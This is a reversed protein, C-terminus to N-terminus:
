LESVEREAGQADLAGDAAAPRGRILYCNSVDAVIEGTRYYEHDTSLGAEHAGLPIQTDRRQGSLERQKILRGM